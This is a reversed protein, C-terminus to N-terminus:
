LQLVSGRLISDCAKRQPSIAHTPVTGRWLSVSGIDPQPKDNGPAQSRAGGPILRIKPNAQPQVFVEQLTGWIRIFVPQTASRPAVIQLQSNEPMSVRAGNAFLVDAKGGKDTRIIDGLGIARRKGVTVFRTTGAARVQVVPKINKLRAVPIARALDCLFWTILAICCIIPVYACRATRCHTIVSSPLYRMISLM